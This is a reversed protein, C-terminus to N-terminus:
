VVDFLFVGFWGQADSWRQVVRFGMAEVWLTFADPDYKYSNETHMTENRRFAFRAGAATVIQDRQSVLYMEMREDAANYVARHTFTEPKFDGGLERNIRVLLNRNFAATMDQADNYARLLIGPDKRLDVGILLAGGQGALKRFGRLVRGAEPADFNGLTSGPFYIVRRRVPRPADPLTFPQTFDAAVPLVALDRYTADVGAASRALHERSIDVPVYAVPQALAELLLRTKVSSGSGPEVLMVRAGLRRAMGNAHDQMISFETRTLYYEPLTCIADFLRSGEEDYFYKPPLVKPSRALGLLVDERFRNEDPARDRPPPAPERRRRM